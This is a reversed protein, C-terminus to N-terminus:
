LRGLLWSMPELVFRYARGLPRRRSGRMEAWIDATRERAIHEISARVLRRAPTDGGYSFRVLPTAWRHYGREHAPTLHSASYALWIRNRFAGFGYHANMASCVVKVAGVKGGYGYSKPAERRGEAKAQRRFAMEAEAAAVAEPAGKLDCSLTYLRRGALSVALQLVTGRKLEALLAGAEAISFEPGTAACHCSAGSWVLRGDVLIKLGQVLKDADSHIEKDAVFTPGYIALRATNPLSAQLMFGARTEAEVAQGGQTRTQFGVQAEARRNLRPFHLYVKELGDTYITWGEIVRTIDPIERTKNAKIAEYDAPVNEAALLGLLTGPGALTAAGTMAMFGRRSWCELPSAGPDGRSAKKASKTM